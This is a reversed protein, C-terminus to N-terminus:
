KFFGKNYKAFAKVWIKWFTMVTDHLRKESACLVEMEIDIWELITGCHGRQNYTEIDISNFHDKFIENIHELSHYFVWDEGDRWRHEFHKHMDSEDNDIHEVNALLERIFESHEIFMNFVDAKSSYNLKDCVDRIGFIKFNKSM